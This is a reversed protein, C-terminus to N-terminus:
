FRGHDKAKHAYNTSAADWYNESLAGPAMARALLGQRSEVNCAASAPFEPCDRPFVDLSDGRM